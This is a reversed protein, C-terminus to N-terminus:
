AAELLEDYVAFYSAHKISLYPSAEYCERVSPVDRSSSM